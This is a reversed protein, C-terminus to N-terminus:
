ATPWQDGYGRTDLTSRPSSASGSSWGHIIHRVIRQENEQNRDDSQDGDEGTVQRTRGPHGGRQDKEHAGQQGDTEDRVQVRWRFLGNLSEHRDSEDDDEECTARLDTALSEALRAARIRM